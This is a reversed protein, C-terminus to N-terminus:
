LGYSPNLARLSRVFSEIVSRVFSEIVSRVFSEISKIVKRNNIMITYVTTDNCTITEEPTVRCEELGQQGRGAASCRPDLPHRLPPAPALSHALLPAPHPCPPGVARSSSTWSPILGSVM